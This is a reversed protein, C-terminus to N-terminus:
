WGPLFQPFECRLINHFKM